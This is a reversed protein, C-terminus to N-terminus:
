IKTPQSKAPKLGLVKIAGFILWIGLVFLIIGFIGSILFEPKAIVGAFLDPLSNLFPLVFLVLSWLTVVMMFIMPIISYIANKGTRILWVSIALLTLSALLQNSTGFIPWAVLYGKEKTLMLFTFPLVLTFLTALFAGTRTKWGLLEQLIYRALRTCVDLTDYVFTSFALLAFAFAINFNIGVLGLYRALGNAYILNPDTNLIPTGKPIMMVTALALVAVLGELLMAGYGIVRANSERLLQKSTTGSSVIAHFGSCAGCAVTIFLIPFIFKGNVVSKLGQINIAPYEIHFGGFLAGILAIFITLYLLWGGLYGRPQLLLWMPILSAIFCYILLIIDWQKIAISSMFTIIPPPFKPGLWVFFLVLPLFIATAAGLNLKFKYLSVGMLVGLGLYTISTIAVGPGFATGGSVAKFTQATIDTFAIIVYILALWVFSLFLIQSTPSMYQKVIEGVSSAKHRVSAVLSSFDHVGGIFIAGLIIWLIAPLWGFWIGALIPGVIPGAAAIASFHQGLLLSPKAPVYDVGDNIQCAPTPRSDDLAFQRSLFGGYFRYGLIFILIAILVVLAIM